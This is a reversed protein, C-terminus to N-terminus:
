GAMKVVPRNITGRVALTVLYNKEQRWFSHLDETSENAVRLSFYGWGDHMMRDVTLIEVSRTDLRLGMKLAKLVAEKASWIFSGIWGRPAVFNSELLNLEGPTFFDTYFSHPHDEIWELDIGVAVDEDLSVAAAAIDDRHSISIAAPFNKGDVKAFPAGEPQNAITIGDYSCSELEPIARKLLKKAAVRGHLWDMRRKHFRMKEFRATEEVSLFGTATFEILSAGEPGAEDM